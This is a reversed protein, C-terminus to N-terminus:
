GEFVTIVLLRQPLDFEVVCTLREGAAHRSVNCRWNGGATQYPGETITGKLLCDVIQKFSVNRTQQRKKAHSVVVVNASDAAYERTLKLAHQATLKLPIVEAM